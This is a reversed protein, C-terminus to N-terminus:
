SKRKGNSAYYSVKVWALRFLLQDKKTWSTFSTFSLCCCQTHSLSSVPVLSSSILNGPVGTRGPTDISRVAESSAACGPHVARRSPETGPRTIAPGAPIVAADEPGGGEGQSPVGRQPMSSSLVQVVKELSKATRSSQTHRCNQLLGSTWCSAKCLWARSRRGGRGEEEAKGKGERASRGM